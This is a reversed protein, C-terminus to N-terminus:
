RPNAAAPVAPAPATGAPATPAPAAPTPAGAPPTVGPAAPDTPAGAPAVAPDVPPPPPPASQGIPVASPLTQPRGFVPKITTFESRSVAPVLNAPDVAVDRLVLAKAADIPVTYLQTGNPAKIGLRPETIKGVQEAKLTRKTEEQKGFKAVEDVRSSENLYLAEIGIISLYVFACGAFGVTAVGVINMKDPNKKEGHSSM